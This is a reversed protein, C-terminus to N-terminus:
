IRQYAIDDLVDEESLSPMYDKYINNFYIVEDGVSAQLIVACNLEAMETMLDIIQKAYEEDSLGEKLWVEVRNSPDSRGKDGLYKDISDGKKWVRDTWPSQLVVTYNEIYDKSVCIDGCLAEADEKFVWQGYNDRPHGKTSIWGRFVKEPANVPAYDGSYDYLPNSVPHKNQKANGVFMFPEGYKDELYELLCAQAEAETELNPEDRALSCGVSAIPLLALVVLIAVALGVLKRIRISGRAHSGRM